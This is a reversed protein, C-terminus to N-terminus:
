NLSVFPNIDLFNKADLQTRRIKVFQRFAHHEYAYVLAEFSLKGEQHLKKFEDTYDEGPCYKYSDNNSHNYSYSNNEM